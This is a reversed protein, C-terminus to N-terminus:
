LFPSAPFMTYTTKWTQPSTSIEHTIGEVFQDQIFTPAGFSQSVSDWPRRKVTLRSVLELGVIAPFRVTPDSLPDISIQRVRGYPQAYLAVIRTARALTEADTTLLSSSDVYTPTEAYNAISTPDSAIMTLPTTTDSPGAIRTVMAGNFLDINDLGVDPRKQYAIEGPGDGFTFLSTEGHPHNENLFCVDGDVACFLYGGEAMEVAQLHSLAPTGNLEAGAEQVNHVGTEYEFMATPWGVQGLVRNVRTQSNELPYDAM